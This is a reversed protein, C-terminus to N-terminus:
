KDARQRVKQVICVTLSVLNVAFWVILLIATLFLSILNLDFQFQMFQFKWNPGEKVMVASLRLPLVLFRPVDFRVIGITSLWAVDGVSSIHANDILFTCDGWANWDAYVLRSVKRRGIYVEDPMTGLVLIDQESFLAEMFPDLQDLDRRTYGAQFQELQTIIEARVNQPANGASYVPDNTGNYFEKHPHRFAILVSFLCALNLVLMLIRRTIDM